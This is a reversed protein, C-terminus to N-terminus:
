NHQKTKRLALAQKYYEIIQPGVHNIDYRRVCEQQVSHMRSRALDNNLLEYIRAAFEDYNEPQILSNSYEGLVTAYGPNDGGLVSKSGAAMAEILVIGFSEGGTSPFVAIDATALYNKKDKEPLFGTFEIDAGVALLKNAISELMSRDPGDGCLILRVKPIIEPHKQILAKFAGLLHHAGKREVFRGLFIINKKDSFENIPM